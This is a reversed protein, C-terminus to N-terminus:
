DRVWANHYTSLWQLVSEKYSDLLWVCVCIYMVMVIVDYHVHHRRLDGAERNNVWGNIRACILSFMLAGRWQGKHPSNVPSRHIGRVFPWYRPFNKWKIVDDHDCYHKYNEISDAYRQKLTRRWWGIACVGVILPCLDCPYICYFHAKYWHLANLIERCSCRKM